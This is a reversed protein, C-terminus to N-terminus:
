KRRCRLPLFIRANQQLGPARHELLATSIYHVLRPHALKRFHQADRKKWFKLALVPVPKDRSITRLILDLGSSCPLMHRRTSRRFCSLLFMSSRQLSDWACHIVVKHNVRDLQPVARSTNMIKVAEVLCNIAPSELCHLNLCKLLILTLLHQVNYLRKSPM